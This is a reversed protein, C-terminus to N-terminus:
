IEPYTDKKECARSFFAAETKKEGLKEGRMQM